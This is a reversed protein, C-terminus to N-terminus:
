DQNLQPKEEVVKAVDVRGDIREEVTEAIGAESARVNSYQFALPGFALACSCGAFSVLLCLLSHGAVPLLLMPHSSDPNVPASLSFFSLLLLSSLTPHRALGTSM